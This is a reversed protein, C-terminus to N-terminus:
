ISSSGTSLYSINDILRTQNIYVAICILYDDEIIDSFEILSHFNVIKLYDIVITPESKLHNNLQNYIDKLRKTNNNILDVGLQLTELIIRSKKKEDLSLYKNRSSM